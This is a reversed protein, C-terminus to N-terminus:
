LIYKYKIFLMTKLLKLVVLQCKKKTKYQEILYMGFWNDDHIFM